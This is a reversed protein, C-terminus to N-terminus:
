WSEQEQLMKSLGKAERAYASGHLLLLFMLVQVPCAGGTQARWVEFAVRHCQGCCPCVCSIGGVVTAAPMPSHEQGRLLNRGAQEQNVM